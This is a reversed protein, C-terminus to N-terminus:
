VGKSRVCDGDHGARLLCGWPGLKWCVRFVLGCESLQDVIWAAIPLHTGLRSRRILRRQKAALCEVVEPESLMEASKMLEYYLNKRRDLSRKWWGRSKIEVPNHILYKLKQRM